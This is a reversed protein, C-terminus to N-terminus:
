ANVAHGFAAHLFCSDVLLEIDKWAFAHSEAVEFGENFFEVWVDLDVAANCRGVGTGFVYPAFPFELKQGLAALVM